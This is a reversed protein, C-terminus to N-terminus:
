AWAYQALEIFGAHLMNEVHSKKQELAKPTARYPPQSIPRPYTVLDIRHETVGTMKLTGNWKSTSKRLM